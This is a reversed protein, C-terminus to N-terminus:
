RIKFHKDLSKARTKVCNVNKAADQFRKGSARTWPVVILLSPHIFMFFVALMRYRIMPTAIITLPMMLITLANWQDM